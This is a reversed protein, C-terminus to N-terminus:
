KEVAPMGGKTLMGTAFASRDKENLWESIDGASKEWGSELMPLHAFQEYEIYDADLYQALRRQLSPPALVDRACGIVLRPCKIRSPYVPYGQAVQYLAVLSEAAFMKFVERRENAAINNLFAKEAMAFTPKVPRASMAGWMTRVLTGSYPLDVNFEDPAPLIGFPPAGAITVLAGVRSINEATKQAVIAGLSHGVLACNQIGLRAIVKEVDEIYDELTVHALGEERQSPHHGRLSVAFAERGERAFYSLYNRWYLGTGGAGHIFLVPRHRGQEPRSNYVALNDIRIVQV